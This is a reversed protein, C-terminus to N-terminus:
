LITNVFSECSGNGAGVLWEENKFRSDQIKLRSERSGVGLGWKGSAM